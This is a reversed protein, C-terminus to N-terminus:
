LIKRQQTESNWATGSRSALAFAIAIWCMLSSFSPQSRSRSTGSGLSGLKVSGAHHGLTERGDVHKRDPLVAESAVGDVARQEHQARREPLPGRVIEGPQRDALALPPQQRDPGCGEAISQRGPGVARGARRRELELKPCAFEGARRLPRGAILRELGLGLADPQAQAAGVAM